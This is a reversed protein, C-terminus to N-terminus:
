NLLRMVKEGNIDLEGNFKFGLKEYIKIATVNSEYVSLYLENYNYQGHIKDILAKLVPLAYGKGQHNKDILFRDLWVRGYRGEYSFLGYMAFGILDSDLYIATPKWCDCLDAELLCEGVTEICKLQTDKVSLTTVKQRNSQTVAAFQINM